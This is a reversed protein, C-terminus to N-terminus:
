GRFCAMPDDNTDKREFPIDFPRNMCVAFAEAEHPMRYYALADSYDQNRQYEALLRDFNEGGAQEIQRAHTLEHWIIASGGYRYGVIHEEPGSMHDIVGLAGAHSWALFPGGIACLVPTIPGVRVPRTLGLYAAIADVGEQTPMNPDQRDYMAPDAVSVAFDYMEQATPFM